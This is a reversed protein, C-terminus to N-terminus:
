ISHRSCGSQASERGAFGRRRRWRPHPAVRAPDGHRRRYAADVHLWVRERQCVSAIDRVPDISTSSTTGVTAVVALPLDGRPGDAAIMQTLNAPRMAFREDSPVRRISELGMSARAGVQRYVLTHPRHLLHAARWAFPSRTRAARVEPVAVERAAALAHMTSISATDYIVGEFQRPLGMLNRLWGLTVEELETAPPSTRWLMAQVNLGAALMEALIGPGSATIAFYAFFGPHNWHTM